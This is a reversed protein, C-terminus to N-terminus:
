RTAIVSPVAIASARADVVVERVVVLQGREHAREVTAVGAGRGAAIQQAVGRHQGGPAVQVAEIGERDGARERDEVARLLGRTEERAVDRLAVRKRLRHREDEPAGVVELRAPARDTLRERQQARTGAEVAVTPQAAGLQHRELLEPTRADVDQDRERADEAIQQGQLGAQERLGREEGGAGVLREVLVVDALVRERVLGLM